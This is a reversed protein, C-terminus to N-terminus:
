RRLDALAAVVPPVIALLVFAPLSCLVLPFLLRVPVQRARAEVARRRDARLDHALRTLPDVVPSGDHHAAVLLAVLPRSAPGQAAVRELADALPEGHTTRAHAEALAPGLPAPSRPAVLGLAPGVALGSGLGLALLDVADPLADAWARRDAEAARRRALRPGMAAAALPLPALAPAVVVLVPVVIAAAGVWGDAAPDPAPEPRGAARALATRVRAGLAGVPGARAARRDGTRPVPPRRRPRRAALGVTLLATWGGVLAADVIAVDPTM